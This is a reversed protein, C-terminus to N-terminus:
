LGRPEAKQISLNYTYAQGGVGKFRKRKRNASTVCRHRLNLLTVYSLRYGKGGMIM